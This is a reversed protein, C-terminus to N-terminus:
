YEDIGRTPESSCAGSLSMMDFSGSNIVGQDLSASAEYGGIEDYRLHVDEGDALLASLRSTCEEIRDIGIREVCHESGRTFQFCIRRIAPQTRVAIV